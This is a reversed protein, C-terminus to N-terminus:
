TPNLPPLGSGASHTAGAPALLRPRAAGVARGLAAADAVASDSAGFARALFAPAARAFEPEHAVAVATEVEAPAGAGPVRDLWRYLAPVAAARDGRRLAARLRAFAWAESAERARRRAQRRQQLVTVTHALRPRLWFALALAGVGAAAVLGRRARADEPLAFEPPAAPAPLVHLEVAPARASRLAKTDLDFWRLSVEPLAYHGRAQAVYTTADIRRADDVDPAKPYASLGSVEGLALPPLFMGPTGDAEVRIARTVSDGVHLEGGEPVLTQTLRLNRAVPAGDAGAPVTVGLQFAETRLEAVAAGGGPTVRVTLAPVQLAGAVLPTIAIDRELGYWDVGERRDNLHVGRDQVLKVVAGPIEPPALEPASTFFSTVWVDVYLHATQGVLANGAPELRARVEARPEDARAAAACLLLAACASWGRTM